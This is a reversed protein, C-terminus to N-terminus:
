KEKNGKYIFAIALMFVIVSILTDPSYFAGWLGLVVGAYLLQGFSFLFVFMMLLIISFITDNSLLPVDGTIFDNLGKSVVLEESGRLDQVVSGNHLTSIFLEDVILTGSDFDFVDFGIYVRYNVDFNDETLVNQFTTIVNPNDKTISFLLDKQATDFNWVWFDFDRNVDTWTKINSRFDVIFSNFFGTDLVLTNNFTCNVNNCFSNGFFTNDITPPFFSLNVFVGSGSNYLEEIEPNTLTRNWFSVEDIDGNFNKNGTRDSGMKFSNNNSYSGVRPTQVNELVGDIWLQLSTDGFHNIAMFHWESDNILSTSTVTRDQVGADFGCKIVQTKEGLCWFGNFLGGNERKNFIHESTIPNIGDTRIWATFAFDNSTNYGVNLGTVVLYDNIGDGEFMRGQIGDAGTTAGNVGVGHKELLGSDIVEDTTGDYSLEEFHYNLLLDISSFNGGLTDYLNTEYTVPTYFKTSSNYFCHATVVYIGTVNPTTFDLYHIGDFYPMNVETMLQNEIFYTMSPYLASAFCTADTVAFEGEKVFAQIKGEDGIIYDTGTVTLSPQRTLQEVELVREVLDVKDVREVRDIRESIFEERSFEERTHNDASVLPLATILLPILLLFFVPTFRSFKKDAEWKTGILMLGLLIALLAPLGIMFFLVMELVALPLGFGEMDKRFILWGVVFILSLLILSSSDIAM